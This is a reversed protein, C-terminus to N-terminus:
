LEVNKGTQSNLSFVSQRDGVYRDRSNRTPNISSRAISDSGFDCSFLSSSRSSNRPQNAYKDEHPNLPRSLDAAHTSTLRSACITSCVQHRIFPNQIFFVSASLAGQFAPLGVSLIQLLTTSQVKINSSTLTTVFLNSSWCFVIILPYFILQYLAVALDGDLDELQTARYLIRAYLISIFCVALFVWLDFSVITWFLLGWSPSDPRNSLYCGTSLADSNGYTNTSLPLLTLILPVVWCVLHFYTLSAPFRNHFTILYLHYAIASSWFISSLCFTGSIISQYWCIVSNSSSPEGMLWGISAIFDSFAVFLVLQAHRTTRLSQFTLFTVIIAFTGIVSFLAPVQLIIDTTPSIWM